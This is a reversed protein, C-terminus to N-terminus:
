RAIDPNAWAATLWQGVPLYYLKKKSAKNGTFRSSNCRPCHTCNRHEGRFVAACDDEGCIDYVYTQMGSARELARLLQLISAVETM